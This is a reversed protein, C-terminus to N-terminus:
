GNELIEKPLIFCSTLRPFDEDNRIIWASRITKLTVVFGQEAKVHFDVVFRQGYPTSQQTDAERTLIAELIL